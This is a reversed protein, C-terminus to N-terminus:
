IDLYQDCYIESMQISQMKRRPSQSPRRPEPQKEPEAPNFLHEKRRALTRRRLADKEVESFSRLEEDDASGWEYKGGNVEWCCWSWM